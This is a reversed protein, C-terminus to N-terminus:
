ATGGTGDCLECWEGITAMLGRRISEIKAADEKEREVERNYATIDLFREISARLLLRLDAPPLAELEFVDDGYKEVFRDHRSGDKAKMKPPLCFRRVQEATLAVKVAVIRDMDIGFDDRMSRAFSHPIDEGEPDFDSAFLLILKEKGSRRFRDNLKKRPSLSSYGRGITYPICYEMAVPGIINEVTNKEGVIEIHNPQSQQYDRFYGKLFGDLQGRVFPSVSGYVDWCVMPRTPDEIAGWPIRDFL